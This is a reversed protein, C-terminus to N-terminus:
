RPRHVRSLLYSHAPFCSFFSDPLNTCPFRLQSQKVYEELFLNGRRRDVIIGLIFMEDNQHKGSTMKKLYLRISSAM